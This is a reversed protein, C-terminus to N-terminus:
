NSGCLLPLGLNAHIAILACLSACPAGGLPAPSALTHRLLAPFLVGALPLSSGVMAATIVRPLRAVFFIQADINDAYPISRDFVTALHITTSGVLPALLCAGVALAGFASWTVIM